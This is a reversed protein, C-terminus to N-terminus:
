LSQIVGVIEELGVMRKEEADRRKLEVQGARLSRASLVLRLPLGLLDADAFKVGAAEDRDDYLLEVGAARLEGYLRDAAAVVEADAGLRLLHLAFPAVADPWRLGREDHHAEAVSALLREVGIGYCGMLLPRERGQADQYLAGMVQSYRTGLKFIHGLEIGRKLALPEGCHACADGARALAIDGVLEASWDRGYVVGRLHYGARNAGAV